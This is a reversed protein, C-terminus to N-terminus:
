AMIELAKEHQENLKLCEKLMLETTEINKEYNYAYKGVEYYLDAYYLKEEDIPGGDSKIKEYVLKQFKVALKIEKRAKENSNSDFKNQAKLYM